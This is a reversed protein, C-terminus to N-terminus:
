QTLDLDIKECVNELIEQWLIEKELEEVAKKWPKTVPNKPVFLSCCDLYKQLSLEYTGIKIAENIIEKKDWSILPCLLLLSSVSHIVSLSELTQSAVQALSDGNAIAKIFIKKALYCTVRIFMRKFIILRYPQQSIHRIETLFPQSDVLYLKSSYNNYISLKQCIDTIKKQGDKQQYFHLYIVELGRKMLQYAAVPSDIGGSLLMLVKGSSGVPMGKLGTLKESFFLIFNQYIRIYFTKQPNTLNVKIHYKKVVIEGLEKQLILSNKPFKKNNRGVDFCFDTVGIEYYDTLNEVFQYLKKENSELQYALYYTSIGFINKLIPLLSTLENENETTIILNDPLRTINFKSFNNKHFALSINDVLKQIFYHRNKGKLFLEGYRVVCCLSNYHSINSFNNEM